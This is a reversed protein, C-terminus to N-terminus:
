RGFKPKAANALIAQISGLGVKSNPQPARAPIIQPRPAPPPKPLIQKAIGVLDGLGMNDKPTQGAGEEQAILAGWNTGAGGGGPSAPPPTYPNRIEAGDEDIDMTYLSGDEATEVRPADAGGGGNTRGYRGKWWDLFDGSRVNEVTGYQAKAADPLNGWIAKKAWKEGKQRGELTSAMSAWAPRERDANHAAFGGVGQQHTTYLEWPEPARGHRRQFDNQLAKIKVAGANLNAQPNYINGTGGYKRFQEDSLQTLGKYSGTTTTPDFGSELEVFSRLANPDVGHKAAAQAILQEILKRNGAM